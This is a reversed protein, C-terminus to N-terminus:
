NTLKLTENDAFEGPSVLYCWCFIRRNSKCCNWGFLALWALSSTVVRGAIGQSRGGPGGRRRSGGLTDLTLRLREGAPHGNCLRDERQDEQRASVQWIASPLLRQPVAGARLGGPLRRWSAGRGDVAGRLRYVNWDGAGKQGSEHPGADEPDPRGCCSGCPNSNHRPTTLYVFLVVFPWSPCNQSLCRLSFCVKLHYKIQTLLIVLSKGESSIYATNIRLKTKITVQSRKKNNRRMNGAVCRYYGTLQMTRCVHMDYLLMWCTAAVNREVIHLILFSM